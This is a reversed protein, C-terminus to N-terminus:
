KVDKYISLYYLLYGAEIPTWIFQDKTIIDSLDKPVQSDFKKLIDSVEVKVHEYRTDLIFKPIVNKPNPIKLDIDRDLACLLIGIQYSYYEQEQLESKKRFRYGLSKYTKLETKIDRFIRADDLYKYLIPLEIDKIEVIEPDYDRKKLRFSQFFTRQFFGDGM